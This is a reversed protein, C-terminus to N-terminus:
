FELGNNGTRRGTLQAPPPPVKPNNSDLDVISLDLYMDGVVAAVPLTGAAVVTTFNANGGSASSETNVATTASLTVAAGSATTAILAGNVTGGSTVTISVAALVNGQFTGPNGSNITASSGIIWYINAATAGGSLTMTPIGGAGTTLTSPTIFIYTGAGNMTFAGAGSQALHVDGSPFTYVGPTVSHGDLANYGLNTAPMASMSVYASNADVQATAAAANGANEIGSFTSPPFNTISTANNPSIGLNGTLTSGGGTSGTVASKALIAYGAASGLPSAPGSSLPIHVVFDGVLLSGFNTTQSTSTAIITKISYAGLATVISQAVRENSLAGALVKVAPTRNPSTGIGGKLSNQTTLPM